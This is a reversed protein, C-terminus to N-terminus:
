MTAVALFGLLALLLMTIGAFWLLDPFDNARRKGEGRLGYGFDEPWPHLVVAGGRSRAGVAPKGRGREPRMPLVVASSPGFLGEAVLDEVVM